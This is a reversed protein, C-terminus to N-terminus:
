ARGTWSGTHKAAAKGDSVLFVVCADRAVDYRKDFNMM